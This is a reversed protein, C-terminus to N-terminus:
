HSKCSQSGQATHFLLATPGPERSYLEIVILQRSRWWWVLCNHSIDTLSSVHNGSGFCWRNRDLSAALGCKTDMKSTKYSELLSVNSVATLLLCHQMPLVKLSHSRNLEFISSHNKVEWCKCYKVMQHVNWPKKEECGGFTKSWADRSQIENAINKNMCGAQWIGECTKVKEEQTYLVSALSPVLEVRRLWPVLM